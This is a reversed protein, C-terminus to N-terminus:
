PMTPRLVAMAPADHGVVFLTALFLGTLIACAIQLPWWPALLVAAVAACYVTTATLFVTLGFALSRASVQAPIQARVEPLTPRAPSAAETATEGRDRFTPHPTCGVEIAFSDLNAEM